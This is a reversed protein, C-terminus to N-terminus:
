DVGAGSGPEYQLRELIWPKPLRPPRGRRLRFEKLAINLASRPDNPNREVSCERTLERAAADFAELADYIGLWGM